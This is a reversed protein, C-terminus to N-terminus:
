VISLSTNTKRQALQGDAARGDARDTRATQGGTRGGAGVLGDTRGGAGDTRGDRRGDPDMHSAFTDPEWRAPQGDTTRGDAGDTRGSSAFAPETEMTNVCARMPAFSYCQKAHASDTLDSGFGEHFRLAHFGQGTVCFAAVGCCIYEGCPPCDVRGQHNGNTNRPCDEM